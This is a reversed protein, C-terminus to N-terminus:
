KENLACVPHAQPTPSIYPSTSRGSKNSNPKSKVHVHAHVLIRCRCCVRMRQVICVGIGDSGYELTSMRDDQRLDYVCAYCSYMVMFRYAVDFTTLDVGHVPQALDLAQDQPAPCSLRPALPAM